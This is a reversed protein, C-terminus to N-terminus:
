QQKANESAKITIEGVGRNFVVVWGKKNKKDDGENAFLGEYTPSLMTLLAMTM